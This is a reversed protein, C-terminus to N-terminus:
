YLIARDDLGESIRGRVFEYLDEKGKEDGIQPNARVQTIIHILVDDAWDDAINLQSLLRRNRVGNLAELGTAPRFEAALTLEIEEPSYHNIALVNSVEDKTLQGYRYLTIAVGPSVLKFKADDFGQSQIFRVRMRSVVSKQLRSSEMHQRTFPCSM